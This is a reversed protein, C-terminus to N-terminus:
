NRKQILACSSLGSHRTSPAVQGIGVVMGGVRATGMFLEHFQALLLFILSCFADLVLFAFFLM